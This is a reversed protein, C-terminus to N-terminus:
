TTNLEALRRSDWLFADLWWMVSQVANSKDLSNRIGVSLGVGDAFDSETDLTAFFRADGRSLALEERRIAFGAEQMTVRVRDLVTAHGVPFWTKTAAPVAVQGLELGTVIRAGKHLLVSTM